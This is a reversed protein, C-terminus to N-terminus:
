LTVGTMWDRYLYYKKFQRERKPRTAFSVWMREVVVLVIVFGLMIIIRTGGRGCTCLIILEVDVEADVRM